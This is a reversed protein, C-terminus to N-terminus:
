SKNYIVIIEANLEKILNQITPLQAHNTRKKAHIDSKPPPCPTPTM